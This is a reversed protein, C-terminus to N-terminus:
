RVELRSEAVLARAFSQAASEMAQGLLGFGNNKRPGFDHMGVGWSTSVVQDLTGIEDILGIAKAEEGGWVEGTAYDTGQLLHKGRQQALESAFARGMQAVLGQAKADAAASMPEFPNLMSKLPGSAYTRQAVDLRAM